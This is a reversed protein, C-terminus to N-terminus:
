NLVTINIFKKADARRQAFFGTHLRSEKEAGGAAAFGEATQGFDAVGQALIGIARRQNQERGFLGRELEFALQERFIRQVAVHSQV